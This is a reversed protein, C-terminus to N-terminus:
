GCQGNRFQKRTGLLDFQEKFRDFLVKTNLCEMSGSLIGAFGLDPNGDSKQEKYHNCFVIASFFGVIAGVLFSYFGPGPTHFNGFSLRMSRYCIGIAVALFFLSSIRDKERGKM